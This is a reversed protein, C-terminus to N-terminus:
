ATAPRPQAPGAESGTVSRGRGGPASGHETKNWRAPAVVLEHIARWAALSVLLYYIPLLPLYRTLAGFRRRRLGAVAPLIMAAFGAVFLTLAVAAVAAGALSTPALLRGDLLAAATVPVFIPFALASLVTGLSTTLASLFNVPGLERLTRLPQRGHTICVQMWGKMWRTRQNMWNGLRAPAEEYTSSPLDAVRYGLRALRLGLDADETVNWADWGHMARLISTRFHNSTGGLPIPMRHSCLYPNLVDFLAAYELAFMTPLWGAHPNDIVLRAQLCAVDRPLRAFFTAALRLQDPAPLDEADYIVTFTGRALPLAVNLARPKTRPRGPPAVVIEFLPPLPLALIAKRTAHDDSELVLKIDLKAPPYDLATLGAILRRLVRAERYLPVIVTYVPLYKDMIAGALGPPAAIPAPECAAALRLMVMWLFLFSAGSVLIPLVLSTAVCAALGLAALIALLAFAQRRGLGGRFSLAPASESLTNAARHAILAAKRAMLRAALQRPTALALGPQRVGSPSRLLERVAAGRPAIAFRLGRPNPALPVIGALLGEPYRACVDPRADTPLMPLGTEASLTRYFYDEDVFGLALLAESATVGWRRAVAAAHRLHPVPVGYAALFAVDAPLAEAFANGHPDDARHPSRRAGPPTPLRRDDRPDRLNAWAPSPPPLFRAAGGARASPTSFPM